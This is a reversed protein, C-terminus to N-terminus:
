PRPHRDGDRVLPPGHEDRLPEYYIHCWRYGGDHRRTRMELEFPEGRDLAQLRTKRLRDVDDPHFLRTRGDAAQVVEITLGTYKLVTKNVYLVRGEPSLASILQPITDIIQQLEAAHRRLAAEADCRLDFSREDNEGALPEQERQAM